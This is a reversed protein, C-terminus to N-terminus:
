KVQFNLHLLDRSHRDVLNRWRDEPDYEGTASWWNSDRKSEQIRQVEKRLGELDEGIGNASEEIRQVTDQAGRIETFAFGIPAQLREVTGELDNIRQKDSDAEQKREVASDELYKNAQKLLGITKRYENRVGALDFEFDDALETLEDDNLRSVIKTGAYMGGLFILAIVFTYTSIRYLIKLEKM